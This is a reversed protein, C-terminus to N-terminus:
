TFMYPKFGGSTLQPIKVQDDDDGGDFIEVCGLDTSMCDRGKYHVAVPQGGFGATTTHFNWRGQYGTQRSFLPLVQTQGDVQGTLTGVRRFGGQEIKSPSRYDIVPRTHVQVM